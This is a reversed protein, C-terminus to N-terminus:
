EDTAAWLYGLNWDDYEVTGETFPNGEFEAFVYFADHGLQWDESVM